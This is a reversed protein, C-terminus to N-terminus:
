IENNELVTWSLSFRSVTRTVWDVQLIDSAFRVLLVWSIRAITGASLDDVPLRDKVWLVSSLTDPLPDIYDVQAFHQTGDAMTIVIRKFVTTGHYTRGFATGDILISYGGGAIASYPIDPEWTEVFFARQRGKHRMFFEIAAVTEDVSRGVFDAKITRSPFAYTRQIDIPGFDYDVEDRPDIYSHSVGGAWNPKKTWLEYAGLQTVETSPDGYSEGPSLRFQVQLGAVTSTARPAEPEAQLTGTLIPYVWTGAPFSTTSFDGFTVKGHDGVTAQVSSITRTEVRDEHALIVTANEHLWDPTGAETLRSGDHAFDARTLAAPQVANEADFAALPSLLRVARTPDHCIAERWLGRVMFWDLHLRQRGHHYASYELTRRPWNRVARRQEIGRGSTIIDTSYAYTVSVGGSWNAHAYFLPTEGDQPNIQSRVM